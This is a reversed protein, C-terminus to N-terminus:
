SSPAPPIQPPPSYEPWDIKPCNFDGCLLCDLRLKVLKTLTCLFTTTDTPPTNPSRYALVLVTPDINNLLEFAILNVFPPSHPRTTNTTWVVPYDTFVTVLTNSKLYNRGM